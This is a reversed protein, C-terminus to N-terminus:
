RDKKEVTLLGRHIRLPSPDAGEERGNSAFGGMGSYDRPQIAKAMKKLVSVPMKALEDDTFTKDGNAHIAKMADHRDLAEQVRNAIIAELDAIKETKGSGKKGRSNRAMDDPEEGDEAMTPMDDDEEEGPMNEEYGEGAEFADMLARTMKRQEPDMKQLFEFQEATMKGNNVLQEAKKMFADMECQGKANPSCNVRLGLAQALTEIASKVDVRKSRESNVRTGCGDAVSCAGIEGPLLALHDPRINRHIMNYTKGNYTGSAPEDDAYYGTSVEIMAGEALADLLMDYGLRKSKEINLWAESKLRDGDVFTNFIYGLAKSQIVAPYNASIPAGNMTPHLVPVPRGNWADPYKGYEEHTVLAENMVGDVIMVVPVVLHEAGDFTERRVANEGNATIHSKFTHM